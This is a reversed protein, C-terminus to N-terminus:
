RLRWPALAGHRQLQRWWNEGLTPARRLAQRSLLLADLLLHGVAIWARGIAEERRDAQGDVDLARGEHGLLVLVQTTRRQANVAYRMDGGPGPLVGQASRCADPRVCPAPAVMASYPHETATFSYRWNWRSAKMRKKTIQSSVIPWATDLEFWMDSRFAHRSSIALFM